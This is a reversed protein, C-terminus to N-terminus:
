RRPPRPTNWGQGFSPANADGYAPSALRAGPVPVGEITTMHAQADVAEKTPAVGTVLSNGQPNPNQTPYPSTTYVQDVPVGADPRTQSAIGSLRLQQQSLAAVTRELLSIRSAYQKIYFDVTRQLYQTVERERDLLYKINDAHPDLMRRIVDDTHMETNLAGGFVGGGGAAVPEPEPEPIPEPKPPLPIETPKPPEPPQTGQETLVQQILKLPYKGTKMYRKLRSETIGYRASAGESKLATRVLNTFTDAM